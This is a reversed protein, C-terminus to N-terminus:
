VNAESAETVRAIGCIWLITRLAVGWGQQSKYGQFRKPNLDAYYDVYSCFLEEMTRALSESVGV